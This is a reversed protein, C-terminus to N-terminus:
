SVPPDRRSGLPHGFQDVLGSTTQIGSVTRSFQHHQSRARALEYGAVRAAQGLLIWPASVVIQWRGKRDNRWSVRFTFRTSGLAERIATRWGIREAHDAAAEYRRKSRHYMEAVLARTGAPSPHATRVGPVFWIPIDLAHLRAGLKTDEGVLVTEDFPGTKALIGRDFSLGHGAPDGRPVRGAPRGPLRGCFLLYRFAWVSPRSRGITTMAGAVVPHGARHAALRAAIWGPEAVCDAALFAVYEGRTLAVGLNRAGGPFLRESSENVVVRPFYRRVLDASRDGGSTVFVVEVAESVHQGLVSAVAEVSTAENRYGMVVVSLAPARTGTM